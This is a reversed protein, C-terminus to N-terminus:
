GAFPGTTFFDPGPITSGQFPILDAEAQKGRDDTSDQSRDASMRDPSLHGDVLRERDCGLEEFRERRLDM